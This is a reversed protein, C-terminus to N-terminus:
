FTRSPVRRTAGHYTCGGISPPILMSNTGTCAGISTMKGMKPNKVEKIKLCSRPPIQLFDKSQCDDLTDKRKTTSMCAIASNYIRFQISHRDGKECTQLPWGILVPLWM